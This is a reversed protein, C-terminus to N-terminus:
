SLNTKSVVIITQCSHKLCANFMLTNRLLDSFVASVNTCRERPNQEKDQIQFPRKTVLHNSNESEWRSIRLEFNIESQKPPSKTRISVYSVIGAHSVKPFQVFNMRRTLRLKTFTILYVSNYFDTITVLGRLM